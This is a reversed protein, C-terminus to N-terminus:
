LVVKSQAQNQSYTGKFYSYKAGSNCNELRKQKNLYALLM